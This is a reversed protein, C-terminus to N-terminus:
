VLVVDIQAGKNIGESGRSIHVYGIASTLMSILGSKGFVPYAYLKGDVEELKVPLFEERGNNSPYNCVIEARISPKLTQHKGSIANLLHCVFVNFIAYASAPHGPLGVVAKNGVKGLITPKGPKVAIGHILVGPLGLSNIVKYTQDKIGM